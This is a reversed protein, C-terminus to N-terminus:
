AGFMATVMVMIGDGLHLTHDTGGYATLPMAVMYILPLMLTTKEGVQTVIMTFVTMKKMM